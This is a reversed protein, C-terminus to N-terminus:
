SFPTPHLTNLISPKPNLLFFCEIVGNIIHQKEKFWALLAQRWSPINICLIIWHYALAMLAVWQANIFVVLLCVETKNSFHYTNWDERKTNHKRHKLINTNWDKSREKQKQHMKTDITYKINEINEIYKPTKWHKSHM